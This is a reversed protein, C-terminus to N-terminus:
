VTVEARRENGMNMVIRRDLDEAPIELSYAKPARAVVQIRCAGSAVLPGDPRRAARLLDDDTTCKSVSASLRSRLRSLSANYGILPEDPSTLADLVEETTFLRHSPGVATRMALELREILEDPFFQGFNQSVDVDHERLVDCAPNHVRILEVDRVPNWLHMGVLDSYDGYVGLLRRASTCFTAEVLLSDTWNGPAGPLILERHWIEELLRELLVPGNQGLHKLPIGIQRAALRRLAPTDEFAPPESPPFGLLIRPLKPVELLRQRGQLHRKCASDLRLLLDLLAPKAYPNIAGRNEPHPPKAGDYMFLPGGEGGYQISGDANASARYGRLPMRFHGPNKPDAEYSLVVLPSREIRQLRRGSFTQTDQPPLFTIALLYALEAPQQRTTIQVHHRHVLRRVAHLTRYNRVRSRKRTM